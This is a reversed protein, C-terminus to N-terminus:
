RWSDRKKLRGGRFSVNVAYVECRAQKMRQLKVLFQERDLNLPSFKQQTNEEVFRYGNAYLLSDQEIGYIIGFRNASEANRIGFQVNLIRPSGFSPRVPEVGQTCLHASFFCALLYICSRMM